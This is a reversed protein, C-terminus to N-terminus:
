GNIVLDSAEPPWAGTAMSVPGRQVVGRKILFSSNTPGGMKLSPLPSPQPLPPRQSPGATAESGAQGRGEQQEASPPETSAELSHLWGRPLPPLDPMEGPVWVDKLSEVGEHGTQSASRIKM